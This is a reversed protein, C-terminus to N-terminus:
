ASLDLQGGEKVTRGGMKISVSHPNSAYLRSLSSPPRRLYAQMMTCTILRGGEENPPLALFQVLRNTRRRISTASVQSHDSSIFIFSDMSLSPLEYVFLGLKERFIQLCTAADCYWLEQKHNTMEVQRFCLKKSHYSGILSVGAGDTWTYAADRITKADRKCISCRM